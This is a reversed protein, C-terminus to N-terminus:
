THSLASKTSNFIFTMNSFRVNPNNSSIKQYNKTCDKKREDEDKQFKSHDEPIDTPEEGFQGSTADNLAQDRNFPNKKETSLTM